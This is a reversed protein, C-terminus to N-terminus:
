AAVASRGDWVNCSAADYSHVRVPPGGTASRVSAWETALESARQRDLDSFAGVFVDSVTGNAIALSLHEDSSGFSHGFTFLASQADGNVNKFRKWGKALYEGRLKARKDASTAEAIFIPFRGRKLERDVQQRLTNGWRYRLMQTYLRDPFLHQPFEFLHVAGHLYTVDPSSGVNWEGRGDFGDWCKLQSVQKTGRNKGQRSIVWHLLLDYNTTFV